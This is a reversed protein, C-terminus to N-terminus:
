AAYRYENFNYNYILPDLNNIWAAYQLAHLPKNSYFIEIIIKKNKSKM